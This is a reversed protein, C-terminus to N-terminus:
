SQCCLLSLTDKRPDIITTYSDADDYKPSRLANAQERVILSKLVLCESGNLVVENKSEMETEGGGGGSQSDMSNGVISESESTNVKEKKQM